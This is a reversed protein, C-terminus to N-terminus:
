IFLEVWKGGLILFRYSPRQSEHLVRWQFWDLYIISCASIVCWAIIFFINLQGYGFTGILNRYDWISFDRNFMRGFMFEMLVCFATAVFVQVEFPTGHEFFCDNIYTIFLGVIGALAFMAVHSYGRFLLEIVVYICGSMVFVGSLRILKNLIERM